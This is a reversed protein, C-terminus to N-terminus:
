KLEGEESENIIKVRKVSEMLNSASKLRREAELAIGDKVFNIAQDKDEPLAYVTYAITNILDQRVISVNKLLDRKKVRKSTEKTTYCTSHEEVEVSSVKIYSDEFKEGCVMCFVKVLEM